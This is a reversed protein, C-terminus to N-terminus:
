VNYRTSSYKKQIKQLNEALRKYHLAREVAM